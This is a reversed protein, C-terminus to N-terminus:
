AEDDQRMQEYDRAADLMIQAIETRSLIRLAAERVTQITEEDVTEARDFAMDIFTAEAVIAFIEKKVDRVLRKIVDAEPTNLLKKAYDQATKSM